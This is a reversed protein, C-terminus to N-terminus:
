RSLMILINVFKKYYELLVFKDNLNIIGKDIIIFFIIFKLM